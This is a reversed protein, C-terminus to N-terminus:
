RSITPRGRWRTLRPPWGEGRAADRVMLRLFPLASDVMWAPEGEVNFEPAQGARLETEARFIGDSGSLTVLYRAADGEVLERALVM